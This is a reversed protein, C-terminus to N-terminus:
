AGGDMTAGCHICYKPRNAIELRLNWLKCKDCQEEVIIENNKALVESHFRSQNIWKGHVVPVADVEPANGIRCSSCVTKEGKYPCKDCIKDVDTLKM